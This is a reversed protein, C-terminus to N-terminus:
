HDPIIVAKIQVQATCLLKTIVIYAFFVAKGIDASAHIFHFNKGGCETFVCFLFNDDSSLKKQTHFSSKIM